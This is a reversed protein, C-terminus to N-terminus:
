SLHPASQVTMANFSVSQTTLHLSFQWLMSHYQSPPSLHPASEVAMANFSVPQTTIPSTCVSSGYCQSISVPDHYTLHLSFQWLMSQYQSPRSPHPASQVAMANVSVSQTTIPSACVSSGYCQIVSVPCSLHPASQVAMANVSVSQATITLHLSFQWLMSQYQSSTLHLSFQWLMPQYQSPRSLHHASQVAMANFSVSQTTLHLSFQWLMSQYQSPPSLHPSSQVAMANLSVSQAMIPSTCVSNGYCQSISVPDHYTLHLSFQWLMSQYQSPRSLHPASQVAMANVSVSQTTIPSACVSSGYCQSISVPHHYTLHLSFQWLMSQYQSPPSLHPASQVAMANVSVSQTTIPSTCISSDYCQIISVPDHYTLHLNLQWLMSHCQSPPSLHPASQVAMANVSVSQTMIPSACVSSGYCQSISVPHHYTLHLSFQWLM